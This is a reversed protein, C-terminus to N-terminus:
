KKKLVNGIEKEFRAKYYDPVYPLLKQVQAADKDAMATDFVQKWGGKLELTKLPTPTPKMAEIDKKFADFTHYKSLDLNAVQEAGEPYGYTKLALSINQRIGKLFEPIGGHEALMQPTYENLTEQASKLHQDLTNAIKTTDPVINAKKLPNAIFGAEPNQNLPKVSENSTSDNPSSVTQNSEPTAQPAPAEQSKPNAQDLYDLAKQVVAPDAGPMNNVLTRKLPNSIFHNNIVETVAEAGARGAMAGLFPHGITMGAALGGVEGLTNNVMRSLAGGHPTYGRMSNLLKIADYHSSIVKNLEDIPAHEANGQVLQRAAKGVVAHSDLSFPSKSNYTTSEGTQETKLNDLEDNPIGDPYIDKWPNTIKQADVKMANKKAQSWSKQADIISNVRGQFNEVPTKTPSSKVLQDKIKSLDGVKKTLFQTAADVQLKGKILTPLARGKAYSSLVEIPKTKRVVEANNLVRNVTKYKAATNRVEDEIASYAKGQKDIHDAMAKAEPTMPAAKPAPNEVKSAFDNVGKAATKATDIAAKGATPAGKAGAVGMAITDLNGVDTAAREAIDGGKGMAFKQVAPIDSIKDAIANTADGVPKMVPAIPSFATNVTGAGQEAAGEILELPNKATQIHEYGSKAQEIGQKAADKIQNIDEQPHTITHLGMKAASLLASPIPVAPNIQMTPAAEEPKATIWAQAQEPTMAQSPAANNGVGSVAKIHAIQDNTLM